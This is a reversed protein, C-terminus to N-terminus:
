ASEPQALPRATTVILDQGQWEAGVVQINDLVLDVRPPPPSFHLTEGYKTLTVVKQGQANQEVNSYDLDKLVIRM